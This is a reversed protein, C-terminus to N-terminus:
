AELLLTLQGQWELKLRRKVAMAQPTIDFRCHCPACLARLNERRCDAPNHNLHAATLTLSAWVSRDLDCLGDAQGPLLCRKGCHECCWHAAEKVEYAIEDWNSPYRSRDMPM